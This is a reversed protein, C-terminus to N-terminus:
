SAALAKRVADIQTIFLAKYLPSLLVTQEDVIELPSFSFGSGHAEENPTVTFTLPKLSRIMNLIKKHRKDDSPPLINGGKTRVKASGELLRWNDAFLTKNWTLTGNPYKLEKKESVFIGERTNRITEILTLFFNKGGMQEACQRLLEGYAHAKDHEFTDSTNMSTRPPPTLDNIMGSKVDTGGIEQYQDLKM